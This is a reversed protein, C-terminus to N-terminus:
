TGHAYAEQKIAQDSVMNLANAPCVGVCMGCGSCAEKNVVPRPTWGVAYEFKIVNSDCSDQCSQCAVGMYTLCEAGISIVQQWPKSDLNDKFVSHTCARACDGCFVCGGKKFDMQLFDEEGVRIINEQCASICDGCQTCTHYFDIDDRTWPPRIAAHKRSIRGRLFNRRELDM